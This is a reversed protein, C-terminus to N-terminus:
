YPKISTWNHFSTVTSSGQFYCYNNFYYLTDKHTKIINLVEKPTSPPPKGRARFHFYECTDQSFLLTSNSSNRKERNRGETKNEGGGLSGEEPATQLCGSGHLFIFSSKIKLQILLKSNPPSSLPKTTCVGKNRQSVFLPKEFHLINQFTPEPNSVGGDGLAGKHSFAACFSMMSPSPTCFVLAPSLTQPTTGTTNWLSM